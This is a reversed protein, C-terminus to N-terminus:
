YKSFTRAISIFCGSSTGVWLVTYWVRHYHLNNKGPPAGQSVRLSPAPLLLHVEGGDVLQLHEVTNVTRPHFFYAKWLKVELGKIFLNIVLRLLLEKVLPVTECENPQVTYWYKRGCSSNASWDQLGQATLSLSTKSFTCCLAIPM